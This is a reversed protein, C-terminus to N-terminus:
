SFIGNVKNNKGRSCYDDDDCFLYLNYENVYLIKINILLYWKMINYKNKFM